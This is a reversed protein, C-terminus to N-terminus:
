PLVAHTGWDPFRPVVPPHTHVIGEIDSGYLNQSVIRDAPTTGDANFKSRRYIIKTGDPSWSANACVRDRPPEVLTRRM